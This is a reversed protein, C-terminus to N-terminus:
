TGDGWTIVVMDPLVPVNSNRERERGGGEMGVGVRGRGGRVKGGKREGKRRGLWMERGNKERGGRERMCLVCKHPCLVPHLLQLALGTRTYHYSQSTVLSVELVDSFNVNLYTGYLM